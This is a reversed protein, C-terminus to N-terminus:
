TTPVLVFVQDSAPGSTWQIAATGDDIGGASVGLAKGSNANILKYAGGGQPQLTWNHDATGNDDWQIIAAGDTMSMGAVGLAKLSNANIFRYTGNSNLVAKWKHDATGNDGWQVVTAGNTTSMNTVGLVKGSGLDVLKYTSGSVLATFGGGTGRPFEQAGLDAWGSFLATGWFDTAGTGPIAIGRNITPSTSQVKYNAATAIGNASSGPNVLLPNTTLPAADGAAAAAPYYLNRVYIASQWNPATPFAFINNWYKHLNGAYNYDMIYTGSTKYFVNNYFEALKAGSTRVLSVGEDVSVNYRYITKVYGSQSVLGACDLWIGGGNGHTYNYQFIVTGSTGWDTDFATGDSDILRTNAVENYQFLGGISSCVWAGAIIHTAPISRSGANLVQNYQIVPSNCNAVIMGDSGTNNIINSDILVNTNFAAVVPYDDRNHIRIGSTDVDHISNGKILVDDYHYSSTMTGQAWLHIAGNAYMDNYQGSDRSAQGNVNYVENNTIQIHHLITTNSLAVRIGDRIATNPTAVNTVALGDITIYEQNTIEVTGTAYNYTGDNTPATGGGNFLPKVGTGYASILIQGASTGSGQPKLQGNWIGGAKFLLREGPLLVVSNAKALSRWPTTTSTGNNADNGAVSDVYYAVTSV